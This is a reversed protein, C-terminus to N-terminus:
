QKAKRYQVKVMLRKHSGDGRRTARHQNKLWEEADDPLSKSGNRRRPAGPEPGEGPALFVDPVRLTKLNSRQVRRIVGDLWNLEAGLLTQVKEYLCRALYGYQKEVFTRGAKDLRDEQLRCSLVERRARLISLVEDHALVDSYALIGFVADFPTPLFVERLARSCLLASLRTRGVPTLEYMKRPPLAGDREESETVWGSRALKQLVYYVHKESLSVWRDARSVHVAKMLEHGYTKGRSLMGLVYLDRSSDLSAAM